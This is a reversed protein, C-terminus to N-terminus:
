VTKKLVRFILEIIVGVVFGSILFIFFLEFNYTIGTYNVFLLYSVSGAFALISGGLIGSARFVTKDLIESSKDVLPQNIIKSLPKEIPKLESQVDQITKKTLHDVLDHDVVTIPRELDTATELKNIVVTESSSANNEIISRQEETDKGLQELQQAQDIVESEHNDTTNAELLLENSAELINEQTPKPIFSEPKKM